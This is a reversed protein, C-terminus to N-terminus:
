SFHLKITEVIRRAATSPSLNLAQMLARRKPADPDQGQLIVQRLLASLEEGNRAKYYTQVVRQAMDNYPVAQASILHILPNGTPLYEILFSGCDTLMARSHRFLEAYDGDDCLTGLSQWAHYYAEVEQRSYGCELLAEKLLPHPKFAWRIEPHAQAFALIEAGNWEFTGYQLLSDRSVSFHPAYIVYEGSSDVQLEDFFPYGSVTLCGANWRMREAYYRRLEENLLFYKWLYVHFPQNYEVDSSTNGVMYPVYCILARRSLRHINDYFFGWPQELFLIDHRLLPAIDNQGGGRCCNVVRIGKNEFFRLTREHREGDFVTEKGHRSFVVCVEVRFAPDQRLLEYVSQVKWKTSDSVVFGVSVPQGARVSAAIRSLIAQQRRHVEEQLAAFPIRRIGIGCFFVRLCEKKFRYKFLRSTLFRM